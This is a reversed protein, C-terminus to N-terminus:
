RHRKYYLVYILYYGAQIMVPMDQDVYEGDLIAGQGRTAHLCTEFVLNHAAKASLTDISQQILSPNDLDIVTAHSFPFLYARILTRGVEIFAQLKEMIIQKIELQSLKKVTKIIFLIAMNPEKPNDNEQSQLNEELKMDGLDTILQEDDAFNESIPLSDMNIAPKCTDSYPTVIQPQFDTETVLRPCTGSLKSPTELVKTLERLKALRAARRARREMEQTDSNSTVLSSEEKVHISESCFSLDTETGDELASIDAKCFKLPTEDENTNFNNSAQSLEENDSHCSEESIVSLSSPCRLFESVHEPVPTLFRNVTIEVNGNIQEREAACKNTLKYVPIESDKTQPFITRSSPEVTPIDLSVDVNSMYADECKDATVFLAQTEIESESDSDIPCETIPKLKAGCIKKSEGYLKLSEPILIDLARQNEDFNKFSSKSFLNFDNHIYSDSASLSENADNWLSTHEEDTTERSVTSFAVFSDESLSSSRSPESFSSVAYSNRQSKGPRPSGLTSESGVTNTSFNGSFYGSEPDGDSCQSTPRRNTDADDEFSIDHQTKTDDSGRLTEPDPLKDKILNWLDALKIPELNESIGTDFFQSTKQISAEHTPLTVESCKDMEDDETNDSSRETLEGESIILDSYDKSTMVEIDNFKHFQDFGAASESHKDDDFSGCVVMNEMLLRSYADFDLVKVNHFKSLEDIDNCKGHTAREERISKGDTPENKNKSSFSFCDLHSFKSMVDALEDKRLLDINRNFISETSLDTDVHNSVDVEQMHVTCTHNYDIQGSNSEQKTDNNIIDTDPNGTVHSVRKLCCNSDSM